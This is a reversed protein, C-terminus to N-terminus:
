RRSYNILLKTYQWEWTGGYLPQAGGDLLPKTSSYRYAGDQCPFIYLPVGAERCRALLYLASTKDEEGGETRATSSHYLGLLVASVGTLDYRSYDQGVYPRIYLINDALRGVDNLLLGRSEAGTETDTETDTEETSKESVWRGDSILKEIDRMGASFFDESYDGCEQLESALHVLKRGDTNRYPVFVGAIGARIIRVAIDLNDVGNSVPDSLIRHASVLIVPLAVGEFLQSMLAATLHLTDTGHLFIIGSYDTLTVRRLMDILANWKDTTMNESLTNIPSVTEFTTDEDGTKERYISVLTLSAKDTDLDNLGSSGKSSCITGGTLVMLIKKM